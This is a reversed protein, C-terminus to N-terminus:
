VIYKLENFSAMKYINTAIESRTLQKDPKCDPFLKVFLADMNKITKYCANHDHVVTGRWSKYCNLIEGETMKNKDLMRRFARLRRMQRHVKGHSMRKLIKGTPKINYKVQLFTFGHGLKVIHTKRKNVTLKLELLKEEIEFLLGTLYKKSNHIVFIDDMYRGYFKVSKVVKIFIDILNLYYVAFIQPDESGLNIGKKTKSSSDIIYYILNVIDDPENNIRPTILQKLVDHDVNEFYKTIDILLIYGKTGYNSIYRRLMIEFRKRAFSTGRDTLSAYNDYILYPRIAPILVNRMLSKQVVRDRVVPAEIHRIHGRENLMFDITPMVHYKNDLVDDQLKVNNILMNAIYRQTAEKWRSQKTCEITCKNLM